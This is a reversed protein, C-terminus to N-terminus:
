CVWYVRQKLDVVEPGDSCGGVEDATRDAPDHGLIWQKSKAHWMLEGEAVVGLPMHAARSRNILVIHTGRIRAVLPHAPLQPHEASRQRFAYTGEPIPPRAAAAAPLLLMWWLMRHARM